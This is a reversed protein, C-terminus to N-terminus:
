FERFAEGLPLLSMAKPAFAFARSQALMACAVASGFASAHEHGM